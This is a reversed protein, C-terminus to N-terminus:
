RLADAISTAWATIAEWDRFDGVPAKVNKILGKEIFNMKEINLNGHFVAIDRPKIQDVLPQLEAPLRWGKVLEVPDGEGTPGSSFLWVPREALTQANKKLFEVAEKRWKGIYVASGLIVAKYPTLERVRDVPVIDSRLEAQRLEEGIGEAIKQTSGYKTAYAVLIKEM